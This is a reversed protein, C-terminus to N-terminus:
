HGSYAAIAERAKQKVNDDPSNAAIDEFKKLLGAGNIEGWKEGEIFVTRYGNCTKIESDLLKTCTEIAALRTQPTPGNIAVDALALRIHFIDEAPGSMLNVPRTMELSCLSDTAAIARSLATPDQSKFLKVLTARDKGDSDGNSDRFINRDYLYKLERERDNISSVTLALAEIRNLDKLKLLYEQRAQEVKYQQYAPIGFYLGTGVASAAAIFAFVKVAGRGVAASGERITEKLLPKLAEVPEVHYRKEFEKAIKNQVKKGLKDDRKHPVVIPVLVDRSFNSRSIIVSVVDFNEPKDQTYASDDTIKFGFVALRELEEPYNALPQITFPGGEIKAEKAKEITVELVRKGIAEIKSRLPSRNLSSSFDVSAEQEEPVSQPYTQPLELESIQSFQQM